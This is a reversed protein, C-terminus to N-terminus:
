FKEKIRRVLAFIIQTILIRFYFKTYEPRHSLFKSFRRAKPRTLFLNLKKSTLHICYVKLPFDSSDIDIFNRAESFAIKFTRINAFESAVERQIFSKGRANRPDTGFYFGGIDWGDFVGQFLDIGKDLEAIFSPPTFDQYNECTAPGIPLVTVENKYERYIRGLVLMDTTLPNVSSEENIVELILESAQQNPLFLVSAIGREASLIPYALKSIHNQFVNVPFDSSLIVDSEIHLIQEGIAIQYKALLQLRVLSTLWFNKRFNRPHEIRSYLQSWEADEEVIILNVNKPTHQQRNSILSIKNNPFIAATRKLNLYLHIPIRGNLHVFVIEM